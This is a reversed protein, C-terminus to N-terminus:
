LVSPLRCRVCVCLCMFVSVCVCMFVCVCVCMFVCVCVCVHVCVCVCVCMFVCVHTSVEDLINCDHGVSRLNTIRWGRHCWRQPGDGPLCDVVLGGHTRAPGRCH